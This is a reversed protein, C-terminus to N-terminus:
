RDYRDYYIEKGIAWGGVALGVTPVVVAMAKLAVVPLLFILAVILAMGIVAFAAGAIGYKTEKSM